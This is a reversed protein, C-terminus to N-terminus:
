CLRNQSSMRTEHSFTPSHCIVLRYEFLTRNLTDLQNNIWFTFSHSENFSERRMRFIPRKKEILNWRNICRQIAWQVNKWFNKSHFEILGLTWHDFTGWVAPSTSLHRGYSTWKAASQRMRDVRLWCALQLGRQPSDALALTVRFDSRFQPENVPRFTLLNVINTGFHQLRWFFLPLRHHDVWTM